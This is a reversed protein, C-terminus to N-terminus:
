GNIIFCRAANHENYEELKKRSEISNIRSLGFLIKASTDKVVWYNLKISYNNIHEM